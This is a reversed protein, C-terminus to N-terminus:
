SNLFNAIDVSILARYQGIRLKYCDKGEFHKLYRFPQIAVNDLKDIIRQADKKHIKKIVKLPQPNWEIVFTM